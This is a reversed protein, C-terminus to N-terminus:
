PAPWDQASHWIRLITVKKRDNVEYVIIYPQITVLERTGPVRGHRGRNPFITLSDGALLLERGVRQAAIPNEAHIHAIIKALDTFAVPRWTVQEAM